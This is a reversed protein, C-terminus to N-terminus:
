ENMSNDMIVYAEVEKPTHNHWIQEDGFPFLKALHHAVFNGDRCVHSWVLNSFCTCMALVDWLIADLDTLHIAGKTLRMVIEQYDSEIIVKNLGFRRGLSVGFCLVKAEAVPPPWYAKTRRKMREVVVWTPTIVNNFLKINMDTNGEMWLLMQCGCEEWVERVRGCRFFAHSITEETNECRPCAAQDILHTEIAGQSPSILHLIAVYFTQNKPNGDKSFARTLEDHLVKSSISIALIRKREQENFYSELLSEEWEMQEPNILDSVMKISTTPNGTIFRGEEDTVWPDAWVDVM